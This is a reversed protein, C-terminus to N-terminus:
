ALHGEVRPAGRQDGQQPKFSHLLQKDLLCALLPPAFPCYTRYHCM